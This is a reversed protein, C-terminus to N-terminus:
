ARPDLEQAAFTEGALVRALYDDLEPYCALTAELTWLLALLEETTWERWKAPTPM